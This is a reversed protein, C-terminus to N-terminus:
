LGRPAPEVRRCHSWESVEEVPLKMPSVRSYAELGEGELLAEQRKSQLIEEVSSAVKQPPFLVSMHSSGGVPSTRAHRSPGVVSPFFPGSSSQSCSILDQSSNQSSSPVHQAVPPAGYGSDAPCSTARSSGPMRLRSLDNV